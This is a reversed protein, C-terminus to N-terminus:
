NVILNVSTEVTIEIHAFPLTPTVSRLLYTTTNPCILSPHKHIIKGLLKVKSAIVQEVTVSFGPNLSISVVPSAFDSPCCHITTLHILRAKLTLATASCTFKLWNQLRSHAQERVGNFVYDRWM